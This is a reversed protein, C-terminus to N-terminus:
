KKFSASTCHTSLASISGMCQPKALNNQGQYINLYLKGPLGPATGVSMLLQVNGQSHWESPGECRQSCKTYTSNCLAHENSRTELRREGVNSGMTACPYEANSYLIGEAPFGVSWGKEQPQTEPYTYGTIPRVHRHTDKGSRAQANRTPASNSPWQTHIHKTNNSIPVCDELTTNPDGAWRLSHPSSNSWMRTLEWYEGDKENPQEPPPTTADVTAQGQM